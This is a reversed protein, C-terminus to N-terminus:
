ENRGPHVYVEGMTTPPISRSQMLGGTFAMYLYHAKQYFVPDIYVGTANVVCSQILGGTFAMYLYHAKQCFVPRINGSSQM